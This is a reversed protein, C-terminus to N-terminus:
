GEDVATFRRELADRVEDTVTIDFLCISAGDTEGLADMLRDVREISDLILRSEEANFSIGRKDSADSYIVTKSDPLVDATRALAETKLEDLLQQVATPKMDM